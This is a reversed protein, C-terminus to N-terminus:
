KEVLVYARPVRTTCGFCMNLNILLFIIEVKREFFKRIKQVKQIIFYYTGYGVRGLSDEYAELQGDEEMCPVLRDPSVFCSVM